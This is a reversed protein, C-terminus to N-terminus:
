GNRGGRRKCDDWEEEKGVYRIQEKRGDMEEGEWGSVRGWEGRGGRERGGMWKSEGERGGM